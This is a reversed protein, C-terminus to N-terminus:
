IAGRQISQDVIKTALGLYTLPTLKCLKKKITSNVPLLMIIKALDKQTFQKGRSSKKIIEYADANGASRLITQIGETVIESHNSLERKLKEKNATIKTLGKICSDYGILCYALSCGINRKVTSDSLDRQLRSIPLKANFFDLLANALGLNGESNEFDIPNVKQPMTSSGAQNEIVEQKFYDDSIYRWLDQDFGILITNILALSQFVRVYSDAPIIQTTVHNPILGLSAIFKDGWSIWNTQPNIVYLANYNGVAGTLKAEVRIQKLRKIEKQLRVAFVVLEKGLTTPVAPQGHTRGLIPLAKYKHAKSFITQTLHNLSPILVNTLTGQIALGYAISNIDESTLGFHIFELSHPLLRDIIPQLYYEVAKVDHRTKAEIEKIKQAEEPNFDAAFKLLKKEKLPDIKRKLFNKLFYLLYKIEALVRFKYIAYESFYESIISTIKQYRGDIPSVSVLSYEKNGM